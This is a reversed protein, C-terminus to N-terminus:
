PSEPMWLEGLNLDVAEFPEARITTNGTFSKLLFWGTGQQQYVELTRASPDILWAFEVKERAYIPLKKVRDVGATKESLVECIWQPAVTLFSENPLVPVVSRRWGALDPVLIDSGLHLEPEDLIWWGGPGGAGRDFPGNLLGGLSSSARAHQIKPRPSVVLEGSILEGKVDEPLDLIDQYTAFKKATSGM